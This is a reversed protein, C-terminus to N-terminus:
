EKIEQDHEKQQKVVKLEISEKDNHIFDTEITNDDNKNPSKNYETSITLIADKVPVYPMHIGIHTNKHYDM